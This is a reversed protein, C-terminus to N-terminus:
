LRVEECVFYRYEIADRKVHEQITERRFIQKQLVRVCVQVIVISESPPSNYRAPDEERRYGVETARAQCCVPCVTLRLTATLLRDSVGLVEKVTLLVQLADEGTSDKM